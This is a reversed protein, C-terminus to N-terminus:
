HQMPHPASRCRLLLSDGPLLGACETGNLHACLTHGGSTVVKLEAYPGRDALSRVVVAFAGDGPQRAPALSEPRIQIYGTAYDVASDLPLETWALVAVAAGNRREFRAPVINVGGLFEAVRRSGPRRFLESVPGKQELCGGHMVACQEGIAWAEERDHTVHITATNMERHIMRLVDLMGARANYDLMSLPEDLLLVRPNVVLSRALAVRKSEGGSLTRPHRHLLARLGTLEIIRRVHHEKEEDPARVYRLGFRVNREVDMHPFLGTGQTVYGVSRKHPPLAGIDRGHLRMTLPGADHIGAITRLLTTKGCGSPGLLVLYDGAGLSLSLPGLRFDGLQLSLGTIDLATNM